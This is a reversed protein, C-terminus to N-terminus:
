ADEEDEEEEDGEDSGADGGGAGVKGMFVGVPDTWIEEVICDFVESRDQLEQAYEEEVEAFEDDDLGGEEEDVEEPTPPLAEFFTFFSPGRDKQNPAKSAKQGVRRDEEEAEEEDLPGMGDKWRVGSFEMADDEGSVAEAWLVKDEFFDNQKFKMEIRTKGEPLFEVKFDELAQFIRDDYPGILGEEKLDQHSQFVLAWFSKPGDKKLLESREAFLANREKDCDDEVKQVADNEEKELASIQAQLKAIADLSMLTARKGETSKQIHPRPHPALFLSYVYWAVAFELSSPLFLTL